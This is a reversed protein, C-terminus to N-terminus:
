YWPGKSNGYCCGDQELQYSEISADGPSAPAPKAAEAPAKTGNTKKATLAAVQRPAHGTKTEAVVPFAVFCAVVALILNKGM